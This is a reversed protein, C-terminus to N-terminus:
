TMLNSVKKNKTVISNPNGGGFEQKYEHLIIAKHKTGTVIVNDDVLEAPISLNTNTKALALAVKVKLSSAPAKGQQPVMTAAKNMM